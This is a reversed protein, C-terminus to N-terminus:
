SKASCEWDETGRVKYLILAYGLNGELTTLDFDDVNMDMDFVRNYQALVTPDPHKSTLIQAVGIASSGEKNTLPTGDPEFHRFHSECRLIPIMEAANNDEFFQKTLMKVHFNPDPDTLVVEPEVDTANARVLQSAGITIIACLVFAGVM